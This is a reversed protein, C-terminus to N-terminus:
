VTFATGVVEEEIGVVNVFVLSSVVPDLTCRRTDDEPLDDEGLGSIERKRIDNVPFRLTRPCTSCGEDLSVSIGIFGEPSSSKAVIFALSSAENSLRSMLCTVSSKLREM